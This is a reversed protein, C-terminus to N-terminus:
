GVTLGGDLTLVCGTLYPSSFNALFLVAEAVEEPEGLRGAPIRPVTFKDVLAREPNLMPTDCFGPAVVNVAIKCHALERSASQAAAIVGAKSAAYVSALAAGSVGATSAVNVIRGGGGRVMACGFISTCRLVGMLNVALIQHMVGDDIALASTRRFIGANNILVDVRGFRALVENECVERISKSETVDMRAVCLQGQAHPLGPLQDPASIDLDTAVVAFGNDLLKRVIAIGIGGAAGTVVAVRRKV